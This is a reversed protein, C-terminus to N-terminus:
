NAHAKEGNSPTQNELRFGKIRTQLKSDGCLIRLHM